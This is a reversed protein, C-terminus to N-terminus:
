FRSHVCLQMPLNNLDSLEIDIIHCRCVALYSDVLFTEQRSLLMRRCEDFLNGVHIRTM